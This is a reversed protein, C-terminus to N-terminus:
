QLQVAHVLDAPAANGIIHEHAPKLLAVDVHQNIACADVAGTGIMHVGAAYWASKASTSRTSTLLPGKSTVLSPLKPAAMRTTVLVGGSPKRIVGLM